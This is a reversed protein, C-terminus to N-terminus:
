VCSPSCGSPTGRTLLPSRKLAQLLPTYASSGDYLRVFDYGSEIALMSFTITIPSGTSITWECKTSAPYLGPGDSISGSQATLLTSGSCPVGSISSAMLAAEEGATGTWVRDDSYGCSGTGANSCVGTESLELKSCLRLGAQRCFRSAEPWTMAGSCGSDGNAETRVGGLGSTACEVKGGPM